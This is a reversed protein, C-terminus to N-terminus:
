IDLVLRDRCKARSVCIMMSACTAHEEATLLDDRHDVEGSLVTTECTGCIGMECSSPHEVGAARVAELVSQNVRVPVVLESRALEVEFEAGDLDDGESAPLASATSAATFRELYLDGARGARDMREILADMLPAPGCCYVAAGSSSDVVEDLDILGETDQPVLRVTETGLEDAFAFHAISKAGYVLEWKAGRAAVERVMPLIPTIGIGGAVFVYREADVLAFNSRPPGIQVVRGPRLERHVEVSGGRGHPLELVAIRYRTRDAPHGNLSYQRVNGSPLHVDVHAGPEWAPLEGGNPDALEFSTVSEAEWRTAVVRLALTDISSV